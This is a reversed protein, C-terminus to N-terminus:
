GRQRYRITNELEGSQKNKRQGVRGVFPKFHLEETDRLREIGLALCLDALARQGIRQADANSNRINLRDWMRRRELPGTIIEITLELFEDGNGAKTPKRESAIVQMDYDAVPVLDFKRDDEPVDATNFDMDLAAM